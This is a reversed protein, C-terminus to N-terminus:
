GPDGGAHAAGGGGHARRGAVRRPATGAVHRGRRSVGTRRCAGPIRWRPREYFALVEAVPRKTWFTWLNGQFRDVEKGGKFIVCTPVGTIGFHMATGQAEEVDVNFVKLRGDYEQAVAEITPALQKCPQCWTAGFEVLVPVESLLVEQEFDLETVQQM